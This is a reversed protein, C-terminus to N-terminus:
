SEVEGSGLLEEAFRAMNEACLGVRRRLEWLGRVSAPHMLARRIVRARSVGGDADLCLNLDLPFAEDAPDSVARLVFYPIGREAAVEAYAASELDVTAPEAEGVESWARSKDAATCLIRESTIATGARALGLGLAREVWAADPPPLPRGGRLVRRAVLLEGATLAPSLGGAVGLVLLRGVPQRDLVARLGREARRRGEGTCALLVPKPGLEGVWTRCGDLNARETVRTRRLLPTLEVSM